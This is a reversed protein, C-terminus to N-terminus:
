VESDEWSGNSQSLNYALETIYLVNVLDCEKTKGGLILMKMPATGKGKADVMYGDGVAVEQPPVLNKMEKFLNRSNCIHSTAGSDM